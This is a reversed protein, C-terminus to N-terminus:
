KEMGTKTYLQHRLNDWLGYMLSTQEYVIKAQKPSVYLRKNEIAESIDLTARAYLKMQDIYEIIDDYNAGEEEVKEAPLLALVKRWSADKGLKLMSLDPFKKYFQIARYVNRESVGISKSVRTLIKKGYIDERKLNVDTVIREGLAHYGEITAWNATFWTEVMIARCDEVLLKYWDASVIDRTVVEGSLVEGTDYNIIENSM